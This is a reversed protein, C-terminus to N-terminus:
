RWRWRRRLACARPFLGSSGFCSTPVSNYSSKLGTMDPVYLEVIVMDSSQPPKYKFFYMELQSLVVLGKIGLDVM